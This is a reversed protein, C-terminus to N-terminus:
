IFGTKKAFLPSSRVSLVHRRQLRRTSLGSPSAAIAPRLGLHRMVGRLWWENGVVKWCGFVLVLNTREGCLFPSYIVSQLSISPPLLAVLFQFYLIKAEEILLNPSRNVSKRGLFIFNPIM